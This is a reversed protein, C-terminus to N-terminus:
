HHIFIDSLPSCHIPVTFLNRMKFATFPLVHHPFLAKKM